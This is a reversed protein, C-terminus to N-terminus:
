IGGCHRQHARLRAPFAALRLYHLLPAAFVFPFDHRGGILRVHVTGAAAVDGNPMLVMDIVKVVPM